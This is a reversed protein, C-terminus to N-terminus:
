KSEEKNSCSYYDSMGEEFPVLSSNGNHIQKVIEHVHEADDYLIADREGTVLNQIYYYTRGNRITGVVSLPYESVPKDTM